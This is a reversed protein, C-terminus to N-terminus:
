CCSSSDQCVSFLDFVCFGPLYLKPKRSRFFFSRVKDEGCFHLIGVIFQGHVFPILASLVQLHGHLGKHAGKNYLM